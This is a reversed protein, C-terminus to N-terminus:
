FLIFKCIYKGGTRILLMEIIIDQHKCLPRYEALGSFSDDEIVRWAVVIYFRLLAFAIM